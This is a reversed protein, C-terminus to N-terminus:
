PRHSHQQPALMLSPELWPLPEQGELRLPPRTSTSANMAKSFTASVLTNASV